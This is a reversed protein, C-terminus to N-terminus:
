KGILIQYAEPIEVGTFGNTLGFLILIAIVFGILLILKSQQEITFGLIKHKMKQHHIASVHGFFSIVALGYYPIFFLSLPFANLGAVGFYFNTDLNLVFRGILVAGVHIILFFALYLGTLIQMRKFFKNASKRISFYIKIGSIIQVIVALLLITEVIPNRYILRLRDMIALHYEAGFISTLHNYLHLGIFITLVLGSLFHIKKINM